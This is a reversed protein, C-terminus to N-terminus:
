GGVNKATTRRYAYHWALGVAIAGLGILWTKVEVQFALFLCSLLGVISIWRPYRRDEEPLRLAAINTIGYYVLVAFASFSWTAKVDGILTLAAIITGTTIVAPAPTTGSSNLKSLGSPMDGRRGMALLVRSLGLILNLLVGLMATMGGITLLLAIAPMKMAAAAIALPAGEARTVRGLEEAGVGGVAVLAVLIYLLLTVGVVAIVAHPITRKPERVEEGLTAVRGYGTYAVFMLACAQLFGGLSFDSSGDGPNFALNSTEIKSIGFLVFCLLILLTASVIVTNAQNSRRIGALVIVTFLVTIGFAFPVFLDPHIGISTLLYGSFGLAATAASASKAILFTWGATFGLAPNLYRYGYEYTGGSVPHSAALAASSLGNCAAVLAAVGIALLVAPGAAEAGLGISVFLGTGVMSGLGLMIASFLGLERRLEKHPSQGTRQSSM